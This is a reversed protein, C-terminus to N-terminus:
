DGRVSATSADCLAQEAPRLLFKSDDTKGDSLEIYGADGELVLRTTTVEMGGDPQPKLVLDGGDGELYCSFDYDRTKCIANGLYWDQGSRPMVGVALEFRDATYPKEDDGPPSMDVEFIRTKQKPHSSLHGADYERYFCASLQRQGFVAEFPGAMAGAPATAWAASCLALCCILRAPLRM